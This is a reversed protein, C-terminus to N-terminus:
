DSWITTNILNERSYGLYQFHILLVNKWPNGPGADLMLNYTYVNVSSSQQMRWLLYQVYPDSTESLASAIHLYFIKSCPQTMLKVINLKDIVDDEM